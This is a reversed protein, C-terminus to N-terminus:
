SPASTEQPPQVINTESTGENTESPRVWNTTEIELPDPTESVSANIFFSSSSHSASSMDVPASRYGEPPNVRYYGDDPDTPAPFPVSGPILGLPDSIEGSTNTPPAVPILELAEPISNSVPERVLRVILDPDSSNPLPIDYDPSSPENNEQPLAPPPPPIARPHLVSEVISGALNETAQAVEQAAALMAIRRTTPRTPLRLQPEFMDLLGTVIASIIMIIIIIVM